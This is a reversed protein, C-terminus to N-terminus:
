LQFLCFETNLIKINIFILIQVLSEEEIDEIDSEM